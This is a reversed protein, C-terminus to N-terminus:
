KINKPLKMTELSAKGKYTRRVSSRVKGHYLKLQSVTDPHLSVLPRLSHLCYWSHGKYKHIEREWWEDVEVCLSAEQELSVTSPPAVPWPELITAFWNELNNLLVLYQVKVGKEMYAALSMQNNEYLALLSKWCTFSLRKWSYQSPNDVMMMTLESDHNVGAILRCVERTETRPPAECKVNGVKASTPRQIENKQLKQVEHQPQPQIQAPINQSVRVEEEKV